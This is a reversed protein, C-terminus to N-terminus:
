LHASTNIVVTFPKLIRTSLLLGGSLVAVVRAPSVARVAAGRSRRLVAVVVGIQAVADRLADGTPAVRDMDEGATRALLHEVETFRDRIPQARAVARAVWGRVTSAPRGVMAVLRRWGLGDARARVASWIVEVEDLRRELLLAPLLVHSRGCGNVSRLLCMARRLRLREEVGSVRRLSRLRTYGWGSLVGGCDPCALLGGALMREVVVPDAGVTLVSGGPACSRGKGQRSWWDAPSLATQGNLHRDGYFGVTAVRVRGWFWFGM